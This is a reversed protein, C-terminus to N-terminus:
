HLTPSDVQGDNPIDRRLFELIEIQVIGPDKFRCFYRVENTAILKGATDIFQWDVRIPLRGSPNDAANIIQTKIAATGAQIAQQRRGMVASITQEVNREVTLEGGVYVALPYVYITSLWQVDGSLFADAVRQFFQPLQNDMPRKELTLSEETRVKKRM